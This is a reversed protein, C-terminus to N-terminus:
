NSSISDKINTNTLRKKKFDNEAKQLSDKWDSQNKQNCKKAANGKWRM